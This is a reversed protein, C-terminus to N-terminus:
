TIAPDPVPPCHSNMSGRFSRTTTNVPDSLEPDHGLTCSNKSSNNGATRYSDDRM